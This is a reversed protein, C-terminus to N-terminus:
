LRNIKLHPQRARDVVSGVAGCGLAYERVCARKANRIRRFTRSAPKPALQRDTEPRYGNEEAPGVARLLQLHGSTVTYHRVCLRRDQWGPQARHGHELHYSRRDCEADLGGTATRWGALADSLRTFGGASGDCQVRLGAGHQTHWM